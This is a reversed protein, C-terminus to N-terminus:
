LQKWELRWPKRKSDINFSLFVEVLWYLLSFPLRTYRILKIIRYLNSTDVTIGEEESVKQAVKLASLAKPFGAYTILHMICGVIEEPKLGVQLGTKVHMEIQP